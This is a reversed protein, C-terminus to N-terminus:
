KQSEMTDVDSFTNELIHPIAGVYKEKGEGLKSDKEDSPLTGDNFKYVDDYFDNVKTGVTNLKEAKAPDTKLM